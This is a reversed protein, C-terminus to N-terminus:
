SAAPRHPGCDLLMRKAPAPGQGPERALAAVTVELSAAYHEERRKAAKVEAMLSNIFTDFVLVVDSRVLKSLAQVRSPRSKVPHRSKFSRLISAQM